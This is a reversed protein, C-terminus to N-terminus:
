VVVCIFVEEDMLNNVFFDVNLNENVEWFICVMVMVYVDVKIEFINIDFVYYDDVFNVYFYFMLYGGNLLLYEYRVSLGLMYDFLMVLFYGM